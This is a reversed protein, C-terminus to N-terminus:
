EVKPQEPQYVGGGTWIGNGIVQSTEQQKRRHGEYAFKNGTLGPFARNKLAM